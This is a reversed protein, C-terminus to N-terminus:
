RQITKYLWVAALWSWVLSKWFLWITGIVLLVVPLGLIIIVTCIVRTFFGLESLYGRSFGSVVYTANPVRVVNVGARPLVRPFLNM